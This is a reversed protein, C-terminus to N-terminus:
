EIDDWRPWKEEAYWRWWQPFEVWDPRWGRIGVAVYEHHRFYVGVLRSHDGFNYVSGSFPGVSFTHSTGATAPADMYEEPRTEGLCVAEFMGAMCHPDGRHWLRGRHAMRAAYALLFM